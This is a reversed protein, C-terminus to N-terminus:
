GREVIQLDGSAEYRAQQTHLAQQAQQLWLPSAARTIRQAQQQAYHESLTQHTFPNSQGADWCLDDSITDSGM